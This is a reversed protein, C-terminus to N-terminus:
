IVKKVDAEAQSLARGAASKPQRLAHALVILGIGIVVIAVFLLLSSFFSM